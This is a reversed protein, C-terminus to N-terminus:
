LCVTVKVIAEGLCFCPFVFITDLRTHRHLPTCCTSLCWIAHMCLPQKFLSFLVACLPNECTFLKDVCVPFCLFHESSFVPRLIQFLFMLKLTDAASQTQVSAFDTSSESVNSTSPSRPRRATPRRKTPLVAPSKNAAKSTRPLSTSRASRAKEEAMACCHRRSFVFIDHPLMKCITLSIWLFYYFFFSFLELRDIRSSGRSHLDFVSQPSAILKEWNSTESCVM